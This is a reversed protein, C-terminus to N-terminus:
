CVPVVHNCFFLDVMRALNAHHSAGINPSAIKCPAVYFRADRAGSQLNTKDDALVFLFTFRYLHTSEAVVPPRRYCKNNDRIPGTLTTCHSIPIAGHLFNTNTYQAMSAQLHLTWFLSSPSFFLLHPPILFSRLQGLQRASIGFM